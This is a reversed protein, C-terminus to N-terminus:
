DESEDISIDLKGDVWKVTVKTLDKVIYDPNAGSDLIVQRSHSTCVALTRAGAARGARIGSPADEIVLCKTADVGCKKAGALYPDPHPKGNSVDNATVYGALPIPVSCKKLARPAYVNSASTVITWRHTTEHVVQSILALTGPLVIPGGDIVEQEFRNIEALLKDEDDIHCYERLTDYLRRGHTAHAVDIPLSYDKAFTDWAKNV